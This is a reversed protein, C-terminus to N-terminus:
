PWCSRRRRRPRADKRYDALVDEFSHAMAAMQQEGVVHAAGKLTHAARLMANLANLANADAADYVPALAQAGRTLRDILDQAEEEFYGRIEAQM